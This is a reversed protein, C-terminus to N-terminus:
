VKNVEVFVLGHDSHDQIWKTKEADTALAPWGRVDAEAGGFKKVSLQDSVVVHDLNSPAYSSGTGEWWTNPANKTLRRMGAKKARGDLRKLEFDPEIEKKYPYDMGMTNLDGLFLFNSKGGSAAKDLTKKFKFARNFQDDRIGLGLPDTSSKTHLFLISYDAGDIRLSLLAGPRLLTTGSKFEVKQTFFATLGRKVGVLTEQTQPGETIHFQYGAMKSSLTDYLNKGVVELMAFVDPNQDGMFQVVRKIRASDVDEDKLNKTNWSALSFAKAM